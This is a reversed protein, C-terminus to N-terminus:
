PGWTGRRARAARSEAVKGDLPVTEDFTTPISAIFDTSEQEQRYISPSDSLMQFPVEFVIFQALQNCRVEAMTASGEDLSLSIGHTTAPFHRRDALEAPLSGKTLLSCPIGSRNLREVIALSLAGVQPHGVMFPDTTLCLHV